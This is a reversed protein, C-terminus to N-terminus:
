KSAYSKSRSSQGMKKLKVVIMLLLILKFVAAPILIVIFIQTGEGSYYGRTLLACLVTLHALLLTSEGHLLSCEQNHSLDAIFAKFIRQSFTNQFQSFLKLRQIYTHMITCFYFLIRQSIIIAIKYFNSSITIVLQHM